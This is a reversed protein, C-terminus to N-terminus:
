FGIRIIKAQSAQPLSNIFDTVVNIQEGSFGTLDVVTFDNSKLLHSDISSLFEEPNWFQSAAPSGLADYTRGFQDVYESGPHPSETLVLGPQQQLLRGATAQEADTLRAADPIAPPCPDANHAVVGLDTVEYRHDTEVDLNYVEMSQSDRTVSQVTVPGNEGALQEGAQLDGAEVWGDRDLSWLMHGATVQLPQSEGALNVDVVDDSVHEFTGLVVRGAGAEIPPCAGISIVQAPGSIGLEPLSLNIFTGAQANNLGIWSMPELLQMQYSDGANQPDPMTLTV